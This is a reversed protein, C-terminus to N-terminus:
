ALRSQLDRVQRGLQEVQAELSGVQTELDSAKRKWEDRENLARRREADVSMQHRKMAIIEANAEDLREREERLAVQLEHITEQLEDVARRFAAGSQESIDSMAEVVANPFRPLFALVRALTWGLGLVVIALLAIVPAEVLKPMMEILNM